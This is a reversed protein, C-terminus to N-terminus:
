CSTLLLLFTPEGSEYEEKLQNEVKGDGDEKEKEESTDNGSESHETKMTDDSDEEFSREERVLRNM